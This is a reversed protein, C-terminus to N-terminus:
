SHKRGTPMCIWKWLQWEVPGLWGLGWGEKRGQVWRESQRRGGRGPRGGVAGEWWGAPSTKCARGPGIHQRWSVLYQAAPPLLLLLFAALHSLYSFLILFISLYFNSSPYLIYSSPFFTFPSSLTLLVFLSSPYSTPSVFIWYLYFVQYFWFWESSIYISTFEFFFLYYCPEQPTKADVRLYTLFRRGTDKQTGTLLNM